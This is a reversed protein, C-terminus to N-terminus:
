VSVEYEFSGVSLGLENYIEVRDGQYDVFIRPVYTDTYIQKYIAGGAGTATHLYFTDENTIGTQEAKILDGKSPNSQVSWSTTGSDYVMISGENGEFSTGTPPNNLVYCTEGDSLTPILAPDNIAYDVTATVTTRSPRVNVVLSKGRGGVSELEPIFIRRGNFLDFNATGRIPNDRLSGLDEVHIQGVWATGQAQFLSVIIKAYAGVGSATIFEFEDWGVTATKPGGQGSNLLILRSSDGGASQGSTNALLNKFNVCLGHDISSTVLDTDIKYRVRIRYKHYPNVSFNNTNFGSGSSANTGDSVIKISRGIGNLFVNTDYESTYGAQTIHTGNLNDSDTPLANGAFLNKYPVVSVGLDSCLKLIAELDEVNTAPVSGFSTQSSGDLVDHAYVVGLSDTSAIGKIFGLVEELDINTVTDAVLGSTMQTREADKGFAYLHDGRSAISGNITRVKDFLTKYSKDSTDNRSGGRYVASYVEFDSYEPYDLSGDTVAGNSGMVKEGTLINRLLVNEAEAKDYMQKETDTLTLSPHNCIEWGEDVLKRLQATKLVPLDTNANYNQNIKDIEVAITATAGYKKFVPLANTYNREYGDDFMFAIRAGKANIGKQKQRDREVSLSAKDDVYEKTVDNENIKKLITRVDDGTTDWPNFNDIDDTGM